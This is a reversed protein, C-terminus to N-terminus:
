EETEVILGGRTRSKEWILHHHLRGRLMLSPIPILDAGPGLM